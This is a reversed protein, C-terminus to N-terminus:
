APVTELARRGGRGQIRPNVAEGPQSSVYDDISERDIVRSSGILHSKIKGSSLLGYLVTRNIGSYVVAAPVKLFRPQVKVLAAASAQLATEKEHRLM